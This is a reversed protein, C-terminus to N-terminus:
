PRRPRAPSDTLCQRVQDEEGQDGDQYPWRKLHGLVQEAPAVGVQDLICRTEGEPAHQDPCATESQGRQVCAPEGVTDEGGQLWGPASMVSSVPLAGAGPRGSIAPCPEALCRRWSAMVM